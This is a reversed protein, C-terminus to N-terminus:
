PTITNNLIDLTFAVGFIGSPEAGDSNDSYIPMTLYILGETFTNGWVDETLGSLRIRQEDPDLTITESWLEGFQATANYTCDDTSSNM